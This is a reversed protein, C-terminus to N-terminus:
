STSGAAVAPGERVTVEFVDRGPPQRYFTVFKRVQEDYFGSIRGAEEAEPSDWFTLLIGRGEPNELVLLGEYGKQASLEPAVLALFRERAAPLSIQVTDIDFQTIRAYM